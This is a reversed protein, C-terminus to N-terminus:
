QDAPTWGVAGAAPRGSPVPAKHGFWTRPEGFWPHKRLVAWRGAPGRERGGVKVPSVETGATHVAEQAAESLSRVGEGAALAPRDDEGLAALLTPLVVSAARAYGEASPHFHDSSFMRVPDAEFVPGLLDVLSVSRGGAEVVAVTQAAALDRSWKRALWRLPPKIPQIAGIDPCTGVVVKCGSERLRRVSDGLYRVAMARASVHTVDNGGILIVAVDPEYELAADVQYPLGSSMAGVVAVRYLKVPRRLRRSVGTALLAGPTERPRHVGYGAASSDGLIVMTISKGGFKAGYVGDGRPPPAEAMPIIRRAAAAQRMLLGASLATVGALTGTVGGAM